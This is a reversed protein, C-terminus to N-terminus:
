IKTPYGTHLKGASHSKLATERNVSQVISAVSALGVLCHHQRSLTRLFFNRYTNYKIAL